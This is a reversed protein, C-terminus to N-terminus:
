IRRTRTASRAPASVPSPPVFPLSVLVLLIAGAAGAVRTRYAAPNHRKVRPPQLLRRRRAHARYLAATSILTSLPLWVLEAKWGLAHLPGNAYPTFAAPIVAWTVAPGAMLLLSGIVPFGAFLWGIGLFGTEWPCSTCPSRRRSASAYM